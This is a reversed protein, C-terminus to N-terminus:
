NGFKTNVNQYEILESVSATSLPHGSHALDFRNIKRVGSYSEDEITVYEKCKFCCRGNM